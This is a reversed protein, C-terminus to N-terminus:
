RGKHKQKRKQTRRIFKADAEAKKNTRNRHKTEANHLSRQNNIAEQAKTPSGVVKMAKATERQRRKPNKALSRQREDIIVAPTFNLRYYDELVLALIEVDSPKAAFIRKAVCYGSTDTREFLATFFQGDHFVSLSVKTEQM